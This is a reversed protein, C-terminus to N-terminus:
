NGTCRLDPAAIDDRLPHPVVPEVAEIAPPGYADGAALGVHCPTQVLRPSIRRTLSSASAHTAARTM